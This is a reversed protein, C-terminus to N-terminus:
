ENKSRKELLKEKDIIKNNPYKIKFSKIYIKLKKFELDRFYDGDDSIKDIFNREIKINYNKTLDGNNLLELSSYVKINITM